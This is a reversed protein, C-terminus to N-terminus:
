RGGWAFNRGGRLASESTPACQEVGGQSLTATEVRHGDRAPFVTGLVPDIVCTM